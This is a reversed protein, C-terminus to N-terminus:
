DKIPCSTNRGERVHMPDIMCMSTVITFCQSSGYIYCMSTVFTCNYIEGEPTNCNRPKDSTTADGVYDTAMDSFIAVDDKKLFDVQHQTQHAILHLPTLIGGGIM